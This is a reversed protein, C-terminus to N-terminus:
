SEAIDEDTMQARRTVTRHSSSSKDFTCKSESCLLGSNTSLSTRIRRDFTQFRYGFGVRVRLLATIL